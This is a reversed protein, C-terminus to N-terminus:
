PVEPQPLHLRIRTAFRYPRQPDTENLLKLEVAVQAPAKHKQAELTGESDWQDFARGKEDYFRWTLDEIREGVLFGGTPVAERGPDRLLSDGRRLSYGEKQSGEELRYEILAVGEPAEGESFALHSASRFRLRVFERRGLTHAQTQFTFVGGWPTTAQLDRALRDLVTRATGYAETDGEAERIIRSTGSFSAYVTTMVIGLILIAVLIELLTFGQRRRM